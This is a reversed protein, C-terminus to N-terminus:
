GYPFYQRVINYSLIDTQTFLGKVQCVFDDDAEDENFGGYTTTYFDDSEMSNLLLAMKSGANSRRSRSLAM